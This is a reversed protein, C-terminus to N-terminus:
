HVEETGSCVADWDGVAAKSVGAKGHGGGAAQLWLGGM